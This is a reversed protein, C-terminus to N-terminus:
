AYLSRAKRIGASIAKLLSSTLGSHEMEVLTAITCGAPTTVKDIAVEPHLGSEVLSIAGRMVQLSINSSEDKSFGNEIGAQMYARIFRLVIATGSGCLVTAETFKEEPIILTEGLSNFISQVIERSKLSQTKFALCTMSNLSSIGTNPMARVIDIEKNDILKEIREITVGSVVSIILHDKKLESKIEKLLGDIQAPQVALIIVESKFIAEFSGMCDYDLHEQKTFDSEKRTIIIKGEAIKANTIGEAIAIGINGAGLIAIRRKNQNEM